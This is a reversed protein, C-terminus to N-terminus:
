YMETQIEDSLIQSSIKIKYTIKIESNALNIITSLKRTPLSELCLSPIGALELWQQVEQGKGTNSFCM